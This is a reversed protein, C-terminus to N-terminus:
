HCQLFNVTVCTSMVTLLEHQRM